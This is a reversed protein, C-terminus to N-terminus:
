IDIPEYSPNVSNASCWVSFMPFDTDPAFFGEKSKYLTVECNNSRATVRLVIKDDGVFKATHKLRLQGLQNEKIVPLLGAHARRAFLAEGAVFRLHRAAAEFSQYTLGCRVRDRLRVVTFGDANESIKYEHWVAENPTLTYSM